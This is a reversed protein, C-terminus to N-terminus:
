LTKKLPSYKELMAGIQEAQVPKTLFDTAGAMRARMRDVLNGTFIVVPVQKLTAVRRIQACIEYGNAIPMILDLFVLDPKTKLLTPIAQLPNQVGQFRYGQRTLIGELTKCILPSDDICVVLPQVSSASPVPQIKLPAIAVPEKLIETTPEDSLVTNPRNVSFSLIGVAVYGNLTQSFTLLDQQMKLALHRLTRQGNILRSLVEFQLPAAQKLLDARHIIPVLNPSVTALGAAKWEQWQQLAKDFALESRILTLPSQVVDQQNLLYTVEYDENPLTQVNSEVDQLLDFLVENLNDEILEILQSRNLQQRQLLGSLITYERTTSDESAISEIEVEDLGPCHQSLGRRWRQDPDHGGTEWVFRGLCLYFSWRLAGTGFIDLRGSFRENRLQQLLSGLPAKRHRFLTLPEEQPSDKPSSPPLSQANM